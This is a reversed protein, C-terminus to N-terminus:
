LFCFSTCTAGPVCIANKEGQFLSNVNSYQLAFWDPGAGSAGLCRRKRRGGLLLLTLIYVTGAAIFALTGFFTLKNVVTPCCDDKLSHVAYGESYATNQDGAKNFSTM